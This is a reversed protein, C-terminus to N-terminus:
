FIGVRLCIGAAQVYTVRVQDLLSRSIDFRISKTRWLGGYDGNLDVQM